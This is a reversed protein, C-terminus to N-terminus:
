FSKVVFGSISGSSINVNVKNSAVCDELSQTNTKVANTSTLIDDQRNYINLLDTHNTSQLSTMKSATTASTLKTANNSTLIDDQRSYINSLDTHNATLLASTKTATTTTSLAIGNLPILQHDQRSYINTLLTNNAIKHAELDTDMSAVSLKIANSATLIDDQRDHIDSLENNATTQLASTALGVNDIQVEADVMLRGGADCLLTQLQNSPNKAKIKVSM